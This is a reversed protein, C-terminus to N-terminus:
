ACSKLTSGTGCQPCRDPESGSPRLPQHERRQLPRQHGQSYRCRIHHTGPLISGRRQSYVAYLATVSGGPAPAAQHLLHGASLLLPDSALAATLPRARLSRFGDRYACQRFSRCVPGLLARSSPHTHARCAQTGTSDSRSGAHTAHAVLPCPARAPRDHLATSHAIGGSRDM